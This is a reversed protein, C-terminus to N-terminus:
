FEEKSLLCWCVSVRFGILRTGTELHLEPAKSESHGIGHEPEGLLFFGEECWYCENQDCSSCNTDCAKCEFGESYTKEPCIEYCHQEFRPSFTTEEM